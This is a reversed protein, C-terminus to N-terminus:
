NAVIKLVDEGVGADALQQYIIRHAMDVSNQQAEAVKERLEPSIGDIFTM